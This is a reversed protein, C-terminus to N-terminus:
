LSVCSLAPQCLSAARQQRPVRSVRSSAHWSVGAEESACAPMRQWMSSCAHVFTFAGGALPEMPFSSPLPAEVESTFRRRLAAQQEASMLRLTWWGSSSVVESAATAPYCGKM